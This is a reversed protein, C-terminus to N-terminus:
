RMKTAEFAVIGIIALIYLAITLIMFIGVVKWFSRQKDLAEVLNKESPAHVLLKIKSAYQNLKFTPIFYIVGFILYIVGIFTSVTNVPTVGMVLVIVGILFMLGCGIFGLISLFRVWGQTGQLLAVVTSSVEGSHSASTETTPSQYPNQM